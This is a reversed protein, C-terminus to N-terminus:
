WTCGDKCTSTRCATIITRVVVQSGSTGGSQRASLRTKSARMAAGCSGTAGEQGLHLRSCCSESGVQLADAVGDPRSFAMGHTQYQGCTPSAALSRLSGSLDRL